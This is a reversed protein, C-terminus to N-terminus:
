KNKNNNELDTDLFSGSLQQMGTVYGSCRAQAATQHPQGTPGPALPRGGQQLCPLPPGAREVQGREARPHVPVRM